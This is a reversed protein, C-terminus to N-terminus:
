LSWFARPPCQKCSVLCVNRCVQIVIIISQENHLYCAFLLRMIPPFCCTKSEKQMYIDWNISLLHLSNSKRRWTRKVISFALMWYILMYHLFFFRQMPPSAFTPSHMLYGFHKTGYYMTNLKSNYSHFTSLGCLKYEGGRWLIQASRFLPLHVVHLQLLLLYNGLYSLSQLPSYPSVSVFYQNAARQIAQQQLNHFQWRSM